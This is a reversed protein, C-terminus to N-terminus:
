DNKLIWDETRCAGSTDDGFCRVTGDKLLLALHTAGNAIALVGTVPEDPLLRDGNRFAYEYVTGDADLALVRTASASIAVVNEWAPLAVGHGRLTGNRFLGVSYGVSASVTSLGEWEPAKVSPSVSLMEGNRRVAAVSYGGAAISVLDNPWDKTESFDHFGTYLVRGDATLAVTDYYGASIAIVDTWDAVDCQGFRNDGAAVVTGDSRLGASHYAGAAVAILDHWSEVGCQGFSDDGAAVATGDPRLGLTHAFGVALRATKAADQMHLLEEQKRVTEDDMGRAANLAREADKIGTSEVALAIARNRGEESGIALFAEIAERTEGKKALSEALAFRTKEYCTLSDKYGDLARLADAAAEFDGAEFLRVAARYALEKGLAKTEETEPLEALIAEAKADDGASLAEKALALRAADTLAAAEASRDNKLLGIARAYEGSELASQACNLRLAPLRFLLTALCFFVVATVPLAIRLFRNQDSPKKM